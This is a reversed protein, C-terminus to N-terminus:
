PLGFFPEAPLLAADDANVGDVIATNGLLQLMADLADVHPARGGCDADPPPNNTFARREVALFTDCSTMSASTDIWIRDNALLAALDHDSRGPATSTGTLSGQGCVGDLSDYLSLTPLVYFAATPNDETGQNLPQGPNATTQPAAANFGERAADFKAATTATHGVLLEAVFPRGAHDVVNGLLSPMQPNVEPGADTVGADGADATTTETGCASALLCAATGFLMCLRKM